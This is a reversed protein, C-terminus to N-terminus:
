IRKLNEIINDLGIKEERIKEIGESNMNFRDNIELFCRYMQTLIPYIDDNSMRPVTSFHAVLKDRIKRLSEVGEEKPKEEILQILPNYYDKKFIDDGLDEFIRGLCM